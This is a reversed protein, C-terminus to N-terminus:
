PNSKELKEDLNTTKAEDLTLKHSWDIFLSELDDSEQWRSRHVQNAYRADPNGALVDQFQYDIAGACWYPDTARKYEKHKEWLRDKIRGYNRSAEELRRHAERSKADLKPSNSRLILYKEHNQEEKMKQEKQQREKEERIAKEGTLTDLEERAKCYELSKTRGAKICGNLIEELRLYARLEDESPKPCGLSELAEIAAPYELASQLLMFSKLEPKSLDAYCDRLSEVLNQYERDRIVEDM